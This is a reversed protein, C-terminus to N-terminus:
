SGIGLLDYYYDGVFYCFLVLGDVIGDIFQCVWFDINEWLLQVSGYVVIKKDVVIYVYDVISFVEFVDYLVVICIVGLMSNFEFILKVLVGMIIFDQGVFLEDFM